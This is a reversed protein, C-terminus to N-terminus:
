GITMPMQSILRATRLILSLFVGLRLSSLFCGVVLLWGVDFLFFCWFGQERVEADWSLDGVPEDIATGQPISMNKAKLLGALEDIFNQKQQIKFQYAQVTLPHRTSVCVSLREEQENLSAEKQDLSQSNESIKDQVSKFKKKLEALQDQSLQLDKSENDLWQSYMNVLRHMLRAHFQESM